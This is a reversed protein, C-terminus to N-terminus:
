QTKKDKARFVTGFTGSGVQQEIAYRKVGSLNSDNEHNFHSTAALDKKLGVTSTTQHHQQHNSGNHNKKPHFL